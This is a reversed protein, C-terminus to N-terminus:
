SNGDQQSQQARQSQKKCAVQSVLQQPEIPAPLGQEKGEEEGEGQAKKSRSCELHRLLKRSKFPKMLNTFEVLDRAAVGACTKVGWDRTGSPLSPLPVAALALELKLM